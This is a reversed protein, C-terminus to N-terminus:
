SARVFIVVATSFYSSPPSITALAGSMGDVLFAGLRAETPSSSLAGFFSSQTVSTQFILTPATAGVGQRVATLFYLGANLTQSITIEKIGTSSTDVTGADLVVTNPEFTTESSNYIGLRM